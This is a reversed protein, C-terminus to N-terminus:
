AAPEVLRPPQTLDWEYFDCPTARAGWSEKYRVLGANLVRGGQETSIGFDFYPKAKYTTDLLSALVFDQADLERGQESCAIYQAHAVRDTEFMLAGAMMRQDKLAAFLRIRRPFRKNLLALEEPSHVPATQYKEELTAAVLAMFAAYDHSEELVLGHRRSKSVSWKRGKALPLRRDLAITSSLDRRILRAGFRFLAYADEQAPARHYIAPVAKYILTKAGQDRCAEAILRLAILTNQASLKRDAILGGYTLGGHSLIRHDARNAPFLGLAKKGRWVMLSADQFRDAHYEMFGRDILFTGNRSQTNLSNWSQRDEPRYPRVSLEDEQSM